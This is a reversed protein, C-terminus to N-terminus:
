PPSFPFLELFACLLAHSLTCATCHTGTCQLSFGAAVIALVITGNDGSTAGWPERLNSLLLPAGRGLDSSRLPADTQAALRSAASAKLSSAPSRTPSSTHFSAGDLLELSM